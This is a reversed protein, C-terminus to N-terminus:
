NPRDSFDFYHQERAHQVAKVKTHDELFGKVGKALSELLDAFDSYEKVERKRLNDIYGKLSGNEGTERKLYIAWWEPAEQSPAQAPEYFNNIEPAISVSTNISDCGHIFNKGLCSYVKLFPIESILNLAARGKDSLKLYDGVLSESDMELVNSIKEIQEEQIKQKEEKSNAEKEYPAFLLDVGLHTGLFLGTMKAYNMPFSPPLGGNLFYTVLISSASSCVLSLEKHRPALYCYASALFGGIVLDRSTTGPFLQILQKRGALCAVTMFALPELIKKYYSLDKTTPPTMSFLM